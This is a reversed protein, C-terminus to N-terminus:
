IVLVFIMRYNQFSFVDSLVTKAFYHVKMDEFAICMSAPRSVTIQGKHLDGYLDLDSAILVKYFHSNFEDESLFFTKTLIWSGPSTM